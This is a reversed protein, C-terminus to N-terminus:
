RDGHKRCDDTAAQYEDLTCRHRALAAEYTAKAKEVDDRACSNAMSAKTLRDLRKRKSEGMPESLGRRAKTSKADIIANTLEPGTLGVRRAYGDIDRNVSDVDEQALRRQDESRANALKGSYWRLQDVLPAADEMAYNLNPHPQAATIKSQLM